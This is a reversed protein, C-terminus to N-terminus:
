VGDDLAEIGYNIFVCGARKMLTLVRPQAYNLRGNCCWKINLKEKIIDECLAITRESSSMLLEDSFVIYTIGYKKQLLKIEEIISENKRIRAGNDMRYCFNCKFRCGRGSLVPMVFDASLVHPARLLRYYHIPFLDYAPFPISDVDAILPGRPNAVVRKGERFAIGRVRSLPRKNALAQILELTTEEGEGIVVADAGTEQLFFDPEPSPGHGGLIYFPKNRAKKIAQSIKILKRYQYYGAIVGLGVVDFRNKNLYWTLHEDPYHFKDQNYIKVDCGERLLVAAIYALGQPFHHIYSGNDYAILLIRM